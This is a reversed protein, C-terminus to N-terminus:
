ATVCCRQLKSEATLWLASVCGTTRRCYKLVEAQHGFPTVVIQRLMHSVSCLTARIEISHSRSTTLLSDRQSSQTRLVMASPKEQWLQKKDDMVEYLYISWPITPLTQAARYVGGGSFLGAPPQQNTYPQSSSHNAALVFM